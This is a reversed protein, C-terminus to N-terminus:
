IRRQMYDYYGVQLSKNILANTRFFNNEGPLLNEKM